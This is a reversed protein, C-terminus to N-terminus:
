IFQKICIYVIGLIFSLITTGFVNLGGDNSFKPLCNACSSRTSECSLLIFLLMIIITDKLHRTIRNYVNDDNNIIDIVSQHIQPQQNYYQEQHHQHHQHHQNHQHHHHHQNHQHHQHHQPHQPHQPHQSNHSQSYKLQDSHIIPMERYVEPQQEMNLPIYQQQQHSLSSDQKIEETQQATNIEKLITQVLDNNIQQNNSENSSHVAEIIDENSSSTNEM